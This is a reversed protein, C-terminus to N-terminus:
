NRWNRNNRRYARAVTELQRDINTWYDEVNQSLRIRKMVRDVQNATRLVNEAESSSDNLNRGNGFRSDLRNVANKFNTALQKLNDERNSGNYRSNNLDKSVFKSFDNSDSKLHKITDKLQSINYYNNNRDNNNRDRRNQASTLTPLSMILLSFAFVGLLKKIRNM